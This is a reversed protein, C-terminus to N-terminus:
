WDFKYSLGVILRKTACVSSPSTLALWAQNASSLFLSLIDRRRSAHRSDAFVYLHLPLSEVGPCRKAWPLLPPGHPRPLRHDNLQEKKRREKRRKASQSQSPFFISLASTHIVISQIKFLSSCIHSTEVIPSSRISIRCVPRSPFFPYAPHVASRTHRTYTHRSQSWLGNSVVITILFPGM